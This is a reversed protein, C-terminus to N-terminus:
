ADFEVRVLEALGCERALLEIAEVVYNIADQRNYSAEAFPDAQESKARYIALRANFAEAVKERDIM